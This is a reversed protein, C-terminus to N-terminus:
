FGHFATSINNGLYKEPQLYFLAAKKEGIKSDRLGMMLLPPHQEFISGCNVNEGGQGIKSRNECNKKKESITIALAGM